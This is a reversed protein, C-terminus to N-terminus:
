LPLHLDSFAPGQGQRHTPPPSQRVKKVLDLSSLINAIDYLRRLQDIVHARVRVLPLHPILYLDPRRAMHMFLQSLTLRM